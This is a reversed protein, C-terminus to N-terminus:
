LQWFLSQPHFGNNGVGVPLINPNMQKDRQKNTQKNTQKDTQRSTRLMVWFSHDRLTWVQYLSHGQSIRCTTRNQTSLDFTLTLTLTLLLVAHTRVRHTGELKWQPDITEVFYQITQKNSRNHGGLVNVSRLRVASLSATVEAGGQRSCWGKIVWACHQDAHTPREPGDTQKQRNTQRNTQTCCLEFFYHVWVTWVQHLSHDKFIRSTVHNQPQFTLPWLWPTFLHM